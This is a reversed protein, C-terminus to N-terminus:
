RKRNAKTELMGTELEAVRHRLQDGDNHAVDLASSLQAIKGNLHKSQVDFDSEIKTMSLKLQEMDFQLDHLHKNANFLNGQNREAGKHSETLKDELQVIKDTKEQM